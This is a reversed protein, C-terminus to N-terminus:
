YGVKKNILFGLIERKPNGKAKIKYPVEADSVASFCSM